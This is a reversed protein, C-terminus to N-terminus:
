KNLEERIETMESPIEQVNGKVVSKIFNLGQGKLIDKGIPSLIDKTFANAGAFNKVTNPIIFSFCIPERVVTQCEWSRIYGLVRLKIESDNHYKYELEATIIM